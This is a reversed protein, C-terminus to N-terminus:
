LIVGATQVPVDVDNVIVTLGVGCTFWGALWVTHLPVGVAATLKEVGVVPPAITNLQVFLVGDIPSAALPDPLIADNVATFRVM